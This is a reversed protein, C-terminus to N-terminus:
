AMIAQTSCGVLSLQSVEANRLDIGKQFRCHAFRLQFPINVFSLDLSGTIDAGYVQIGRPHVLKKAQENTCLWAVLEARIRRKAEWCDADKPDNDEDWDNDNPGCIAVDGNPVNKLLEQEADSLKGFKAALRKLRRAQAPTQDDM